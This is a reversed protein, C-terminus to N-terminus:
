NISVTTQVYQQKYNIHPLKTRKPKKKFRYQLLRIKNKLTMAVIWFSHTSLVATVTPVASRCTENVSSYTFKVKNLHFYLHYRNVPHDLDAYFPETKLQAPEVDASHPVSVLQLVLTQIVLGTSHSKRVPARVFQCHMQLDILLKTNPIWISLVIHLFTIM